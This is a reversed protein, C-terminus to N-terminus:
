RFEVTGGAGSSVAEPLSFASRLADIAHQDGAFRIRRLAAAREVDGAGLRATVLDAASATITVSPQGVAGALRGQTVAFEFRRGDIEARCTAEVGAAGASNFGLLIGALFGNLPSVPGSDIPDVRDLGFWALSQLVPLVRRWGLDSLTYVTRGVPAPLDTRDILGADHLEKLREALLNTAIGPLEARLDGYRRAGGVLERLILLTWREGLVDLGRAIPCNQNYNRAAM